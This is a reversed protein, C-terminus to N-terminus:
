EDSLVEEISLQGPLVDEDPEEERVFVPRTAGKYYLFKLLANVREEFICVDILNDEILNDSLYGILWDALCEAVKDPNKHDEIVERISVSEWRGTIPNQARVFV